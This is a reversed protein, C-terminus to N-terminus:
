RSAPAALLAVLVAGGKTAQEGIRAFGMREHFALSEPNPPEINVECTVEARGDAAARDFVATYFRRGIGTGRTDGAVVIRDIYLCSAGSEAARASFFRYNESDYDAGPDVTILFGKVAGGDDVAVLSLSALALLDTIEGAGAIPVAPYASNNLEVIAPVDASDIPRLELTM